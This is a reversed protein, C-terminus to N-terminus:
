AKGLWKTYISNSDQKNFTFFVMKSNPNISPPYLPTLGERIYFYAQKLNYIYILNNNM